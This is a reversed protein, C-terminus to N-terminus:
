QEETEADIDDSNVEGRGEGSERRPEVHGEPPAVRPLPLFLFPPFSAVWLWFKEEQSPMLMLHGAKQPDRKFFRTLAQGHDMVDLFEAFYILEKYDNPAPTATCVFRYPVDHFVDKFIQATKTGLSRLVSGEDLSVGAFDHKRPDIDGDRVREYNTILYPTDARAIEDDTRVYTWETGLAPGDEYQFQQKVALPCVVLFRKGTREHILRALEIQIRTKGLGFSMAVLARGLRLAWQVADTQHDMLCWSIANVDVDFGSHESVIIKTQLFDTYTDM